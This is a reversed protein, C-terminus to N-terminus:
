AIGIIPGILVVHQWDDLSTSSHKDIHVIFEIAFHPQLRHWAVGRPVYGDAQSRSAYPCHKGAIEHMPRHM